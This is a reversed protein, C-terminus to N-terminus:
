CILTYKGTKIEKAINLKQSHKNRELVCSELYQQSWIAAREEVKLM